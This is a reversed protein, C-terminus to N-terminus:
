FGYVMCAGGVQQRVMGRATRMYGEELRPVEMLKHEQQKLKNSLTTNDSKLDSVQERLSM